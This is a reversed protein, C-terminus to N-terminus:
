PKSVEDTDQENYYVGLSVYIAGSDKDAEHQSLWTDLEELL